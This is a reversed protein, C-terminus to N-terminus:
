WAVPGILDFLEHNPGSYFNELFAIDEREFVVDGYSGRNMVPLPMRDWGIPRAGIFDCLESLLAAPREALDRFGVIRLQQEDFHKRWTRIQEAYLGRRLFGPDVVDPSDRMLALEIDICERLSAVTDRGDHLLEFIRCHPNRLRPRRHLGARHRVFARRYMNYASLARGVPDRLILIMKMRPYHRAVSEAVWPFYAYGPTAEFHFRARGRFCKRYGAIPVGHPMSRDFYHVEKVVAGRIEPHMALLHYLSTSGAKQAGIVLFSPDNARVVLTSPDRVQRWLSALARRAHM